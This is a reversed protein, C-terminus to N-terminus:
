KQIWLATPIYFELIQHSFETELDLLYNPGYGLTIMCEIALRVFLDKSDKHQWGM